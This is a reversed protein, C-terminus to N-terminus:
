DNLFSHKPLFEGNEVASKISGYDEKAIATFKIKDGVSAFCPNQNNLNFFNLPSNGIVHWGGPSEMPYIGTQSEGIAVSGKSIHKDPITKRAMTLQKELGSLYLFGPLFGIFCVSYFPATHLSIIQGISLKKIKSLSVLDPALDAHYCVPIEWLKTEHTVLSNEGKYLTKLASIESYVNEITLEYVITISNYASIIELISKINKQEILNKFIWVDKQIELEIKQPWEILIARNGFPKYLLDYREL